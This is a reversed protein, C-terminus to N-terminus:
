ATGRRETQKILRYGYVVAALGFITNAAGMGALVGEAGAFWAGATVLPGIGIVTKTWNFLTSYHPKGLNNFSANAM